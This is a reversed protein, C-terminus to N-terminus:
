VKSVTNISKVAELACGGISGAENRTSASCQGVCNDTGLYICCNRCDDQISAQCCDCDVFVCFLKRVEEYQDPGFGCECVVRCM